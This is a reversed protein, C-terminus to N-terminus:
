FKNQCNIGFRTFINFIQYIIQGFELFFYTDLKQIYNTHQSKYWFIYHLYQLLIKVHFFIKLLSTYELLMIKNNQMMSSNNHDDM